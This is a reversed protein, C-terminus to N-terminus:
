VELLSLIGQFAQLIVLEEALGFQVGLLGAVGSEEILSHVFGGHRGRRLWLFLTILFGMLLLLICVQM